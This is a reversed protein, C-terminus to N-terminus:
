VEVESVRLYKPYQKQIERLGLQMVKMLLASQETEERNGDWSCDLLNSKTETKVEVPLQIIQELALLTTHTLASVGACVIDSGRKAYGAHGSCTFGVVRGQLDKKVVVLIM